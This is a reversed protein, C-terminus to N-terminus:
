LNPKLDPNRACLIELLRVLSENDAEMSGKYRRVIDDVMEESPILDPTHHLLLEMTAMPCQFRSEKFIAPTIACQPKHKLLISVQELSTAELLMTETIGPPELARLFLGLEVDIGAKILTLISAESVNNSNPYDNHHKEHGLVLRVDDDRLILRYSSDEFARILRAYGTMDSVWTRSSHSITTSLATKGDPGQINPDAGFELLLRAARMDKNKCAHFLPTGLSPHRCNVPSGAQLLYVLIDPNYDQIKRAAEIAVLLPSRFYGSESKVDAGAEILRQVIKISGALCAWSLTSDCKDPEAEFTTGKEVLYDVIAECRSIQGPSRVAVMSGGWHVKLEEDEMIMEDFLLPCPGNKACAYVAARAANGYDPHRRYVDAGGGVLVKVVELQLSRAALELAQFGRHDQENVAVGARLMIQVIPLSGGICASHLVQICPQVYQMLLWTLDDDNQKLATPLAAAIMDTANELNATAELIAETVAYSRSRVAYVLANYGGHYSSAGAAVLEQVAHLHGGVAANQLAIMGQTANKDVEAGADVLIRISGAHGQSAALQMPTGYYEVDQNVSAGHYILALIVDEHGNYCAAHLPSTREADSRWGLGRPGRRVQHPARLVDVPAGRELFLKVMALNGAACAMILPHDHEPLNSEFDLGSSALLKLIDLSGSEVALSLLSASDGIPELSIDAAHELLTRVIDAYGGIIAARLPSHYRGRLINPNAGLQLLRKVLDYRGFCAAAQLATGYYTDRRKTGEYTAPRNPDFGRELLVNICNTDNVVIASQFLGQFGDHNARMSPLTRLLVQVSAGPGTAMAEALTESESFTGDKGFRKLCRALVDETTYTEDPLRAGADILRQMVRGACEDREAAMLIANEFQDSAYRSSVMAHIDANAEILWNIVQLSWHRAAVMLPYQAWGGLSNSNAGHDLLIKVTAECDLISGKTWVPSSPLVWPFFSSPPLPRNLVAQLANTMKHTSRDDKGQSTPQRHKRSALWEKRLKLMENVQRSHTTMDIERDQSALWDASETVLNYCPHRHVRRVLGNVEAGAQLLSKVCDTHGHAAAITLARTIDETRHAWNGDQMLLLKLIHHRGNGAAALLSPSPIYEMENSGLHSLLYSTMDTDGNSACINLGQHVVMEADEEDMRLLLNSAITRNGRVCACQFAKSIDYASFQQETGLISATATDDGRAAARILEQGRVIVIRSRPIYKKVSSLMDEVFRSSLRCSLRVLIERGRRNWVDVPIKEIGFDVIDAHGKDAAHLLVAPLQDVLYPRQLTRWIWRFTNVHGEAALFQLTDIIDSDRVPLISMPRLLKEVVELNGGAASKKLTGRHSGDMSHRSPQSSPLTGTTDKVAVLSAFAPYLSQSAQDLLHLTPQVAAPIGDSYPDSDRLLEKHPSEYPIRRGFGCQVV